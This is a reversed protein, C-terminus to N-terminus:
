VRTDDRGEEGKERRSSGSSPVLPLFHFQGSILSCVLIGFCTICVIAGFPLSSGTMRSREDPLYENPRTCLINRSAAAAAFYTDVAVFISCSYMKKRGSPIQAIIHDAVDQTTTSLIDKVMQVPVVNKRCRESVDVM